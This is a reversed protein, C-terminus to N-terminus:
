PHISISARRLWQSLHYIKHINEFIEKCGPQHSLTPLTPKSSPASLLKFITRLITKLNSDYRTFIFNAVRQSMINIYIGYNFHGYILTRQVCLREQIGHRAGM